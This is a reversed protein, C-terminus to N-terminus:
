VNNQLHKCESCASFISLDNGIILLPAGDFSESSYWFIKSLTSCRNSGMHDHSIARHIVKSAVRIIAQVVYYAKTLM